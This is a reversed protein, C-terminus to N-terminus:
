DSLVGAIDPELITIFEENDIVTKQGVHESFVVKDGVAVSMPILFGKNSYKGPGVAVVTGSGLKSRNLLAILGQKEEDQKVLVCDRAPIFKM